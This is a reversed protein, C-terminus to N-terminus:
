FQGWFSVFRCFINKQGLSLDPDGDGADRAGKSTGVRWSIAGKWYQAYERNRPTDRHTPMVLM